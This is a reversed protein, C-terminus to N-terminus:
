GAAALPTSLLFVFADSRPRNFANVLGQREGAPTSGDLRAAPWRSECELARLTLTVTSTSVLVASRRPGPGSTPWCRSPSTSSAARPATATPAARRSRASGSSRRWADADGAAAGLTAAAPGRPSRCCVVHVTKPPLSARSVDAATRRLYFAAARARADGAETAALRKERPAGPGRRGRHAARRRAFAALPGFVDPNVVDALAHFESLDNMAPTGTILLRRKARCDRIARATKSGAGGKLRHGEDFVLLDLQLDGEIHSAFYRQFSEYSIALVACSRRGDVGGSSRNPRSRAATSRAAPPRSAPSWTVNSSVRGFFKADEDPWKPADADGNVCSGAAKVLLRLTTLTALTKGLGMEDALIAGCGGRPQRGSLARYFWRRRSTRRLKRALPGRIAVRSPSSRSSTRAPRRPPAPGARAGRLRGQAAAARASPAAAVGDASASAAARRRAACARPGRPAPAGPAARAARRAAGAGARRVPKARGARFRRQQPQRAALPRRGQPGPDPDQVQFYTEYEEDDEFTPTSVILATLPVADAFARCALRPTLTELALALAEPRRGRAAPVGRQANFRRQIVRKSGQAARRRRRARGAHLGGGGFCGLPMLARELLGRLLHAAQAERAFLLLVAAAAAADAEDPEGLEVISGQRLEAVLPPPRPSRSLSVAGLVAPCHAPSSAEGCSAAWRAGIRYRAEAGSLESQSSVRPSPERADGGRRPGIVADLFRRM